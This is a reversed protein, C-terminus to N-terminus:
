FGDHVSHRELAGGLVEPLLKDRFGALFLDLTRRAAADRPGFSLPALGDRQASIQKQRV